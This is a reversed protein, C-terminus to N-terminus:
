NGGTDESLCCEHTCDPGLSDQLLSGCTVKGEEECGSDHKM